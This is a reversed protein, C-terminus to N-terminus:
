FRGELSPLFPFSTHCNWGGELGIGLGSPPPLSIIQNSLIGAM